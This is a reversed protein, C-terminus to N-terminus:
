EREGARPPPGRCGSLSLPLLSVPQRCNSNSKKTDMFSPTMAKHNAAEERATEACLKNEQDCSYVSFSVIKRNKKLTCLRSLFLVDCEKEQCCVVAVAVLPQTPPGDLHM